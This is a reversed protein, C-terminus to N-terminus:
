QNNNKEIVLLKEAFVQKFANAHQEILDLMQDTPILQRARKDSQNPVSHILGLEEFERVKLRIARESLQTDFHIDKLSQQVDSGSLTQQVLKFYLFQGSMTDFPPLKSLEWLHLKALSVLANKQRNSFRPEM